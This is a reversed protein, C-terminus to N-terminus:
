APPSEAVVDKEYKDELEKVRKAAAVYRAFWTAQANLAENRQASLAEMMDKPDLELEKSM